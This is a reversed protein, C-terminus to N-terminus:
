KAKRCLSNYLAKYVLRRLENNGRELRSLGGNVNKSERGLEYSDVFFAILEEGTLEIKKTM